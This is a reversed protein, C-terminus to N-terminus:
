ISSIGNLIDSGLSPNDQSQTTGTTGTTYVQGGSSLASLLNGAQALPLSLAGTVGQLYNIPTGTAAALQGPANVQNQREGLYNQLYTNANQANANATAAATNAQEAQEMGTSFSQGNKAFQSRIRANQDAVGQLASARQYALARDLVPSGNLYDGAATRTANNAAIGWGPLAAASTMANAAGQGAGALQPLWGSLYNFLQSRLQPAGTASYDQSGNANISTPGLPDIWQNSNRQTQQGGQSSSCFGM